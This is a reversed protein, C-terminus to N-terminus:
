PTAVPEFSHGNTQKLRDRLTSDPVGEARAAARKTEGGRVRAVARELAAEREDASPETVPETPTRLVVHGRRAPAQAVQPLQVRAPMRPPEVEPARPPQAPQAVPQAPVHAAVKVAPARDPQAVPAFSKRPDTADLVLRRWDRLTSWPALAVRILRPPMVVVPGPQGRRRLVQRRVESLLVEFALMALVPVAAALVITQEDGDSRTWAWAGNSASSATIAVATVLRAFVAPRADLSAAWSVAAMAVAMGDLVLPLLQPTTFGNAKAYHTQEEFSWVAGALWVGAILTLAIGIPLHKLWPRRATM